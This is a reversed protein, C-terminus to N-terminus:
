NEVGPSKEIYRKDSMEIKQYITKEIHGNNRHTIKTVYCPPPM